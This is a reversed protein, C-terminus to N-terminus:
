AAHLSLACVRQAVDRVTAGSSLVETGFAANLESQLQYIVAVVQLSSAGLEFFDADPAVHDVKLAEAWLKALLAEVEAVKSQM